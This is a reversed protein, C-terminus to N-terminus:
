GDNPELNKAPPTVTSMASDGTSYTLGTGNKLFDLVWPSPSMVYTHEWIVKEQSSIESDLLPTVTVPLTEDNM